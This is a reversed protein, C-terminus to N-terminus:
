VFRNTCFTGLVCVIAARNVMVAAGKFTGVFISNRVLSLYSVAIVSTSKLTFESLITPPVCTCVGITITGNSFMPISVSSAAGSKVRIPFFSRFPRKYTPFSVATPSVVVFVPGYVRYTLPFVSEGIAIPGMKVRIPAYRLLTFVTIM